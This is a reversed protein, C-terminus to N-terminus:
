RKSEPRKLSIVRVGPACNVGAPFWAPPNVKCFIVAGVSDPRIKALSEEAVKDDGSIIQVERPWVLYSVAMGLLSDFVNEGMFIVIRGKQPLASLTAFFQPSGESGSAARLGLHITHLSDVPGVRNRAIEPILIPISGLLFACILGGWLALHLVRSSSWGVPRAGSAAALPGSSQEITENARELPFAALERM